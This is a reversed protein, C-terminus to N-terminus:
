QLTSFLETGESTIPCPSTSYWFGQSFYPRYVGMYHLTLEIHVFYLASYM